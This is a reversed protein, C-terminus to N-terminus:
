DAEAEIASVGLHTEIMEKNDQLDDITGDWVIQGKSLIYGRETLDFAFKVNQEAILVTIGTEGIERLIKRLDQVIIPALGESPEDLLLLDPDTVLARAISLMQQEGGSLQKGLQSSREDLKPFLDFVRDLSWESDKKVLIEINDQVTLDPFVRRDEPVYGIGANAIQFPKKGSIRDGKFTITGSRPPTMGIISRMTTTKGAGNRGMLAVTEGEEISMSVGYLVHSQGYYTQIDEIELLSM